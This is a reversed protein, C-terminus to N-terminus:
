NTSGAVAIASPLSDKPMAQLWTKLPARAKNCGGEDVLLFDVPNRALFKAPVQTFSRTEKRRPRCDLADLLDQDQMSFVPAENTWVLRALDLGHGITGYSFQKPTSPITPLKRQPAELIDASPGSDISCSSEGVCLM